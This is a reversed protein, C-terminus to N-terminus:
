AGARMEAAEARRRGTMLILLGMALTLLAGGAMHARGVRPPSPLRLVAAPRSFSPAEPLVILDIAAGAAIPQGEPWRHIVGEYSRGGHDYTYAWGGSPNCQVTGTVAVGHQRLRDEYEGCLNRGHATLAGIVGVACLALFLGVSV